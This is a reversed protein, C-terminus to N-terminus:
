ERISECIMQKQMIIIFFNTDAPFWNQQKQTTAKGNELIKQPFFEKELENILDSAFSLMFNDLIDNMNIKGVVVLQKNTQKNGYRLLLCCALL